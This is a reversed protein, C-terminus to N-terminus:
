EGGGYKNEDETNPSMEDLIYKFLHNSRVTPTRWQITKM